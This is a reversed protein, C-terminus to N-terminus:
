FEKKKACLLMVTGMNLVIAGGVVDRWVHCLCHQSSYNM